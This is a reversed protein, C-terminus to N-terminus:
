PYSVSEMSPGTRISKEPVALDDPASLIEDNWDGDLYSHFRHVSRSLRSFISSRYDWIFDFIDTCVAHSPTYDNTATQSARSINRILVFLLIIFIVGGIYGIELVNQLLFNNASAIEDNTYSAFLYAYLQSVGSVM